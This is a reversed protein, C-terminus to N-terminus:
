VVEEAETMRVTIGTVGESPSVEFAFGTKRAFATVKVAVMAECATGGVPVTVKKSPAVCIPVPVTEEPCAVKVVVASELM